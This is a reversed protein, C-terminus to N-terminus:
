RDEGGVGRLRSADRESNKAGGSTVRAVRPTGADSVRIRDAPEPGRVRGGDAFRRGGKANCHTDVRGDNAADGGTTWATIANTYLGKAKKRHSNKPRSM